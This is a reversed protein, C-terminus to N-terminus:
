KSALSRSQPHWHKNIPVIGPQKLAELGCFIIEAEWVTHTLVPAMLAGVVAEVQDQWWYKACLNSM